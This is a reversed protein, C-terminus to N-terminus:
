PTPVLGNLSRLGAQVADAFGPGVTTDIGLYRLGVLAGTALAALLGLTALLSGAVDRRSARALGLVSVVLGVVACLCALGVLDGFPGTVLAVLGLGFGTVAAASVRVVPAPSSEFLADLDDERDQITM